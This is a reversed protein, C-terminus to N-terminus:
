EYMSPVGDGDDDPLNEDAGMDYGAGQPRVDGDIDDAPAGDPTATDVCPSALFIHYDGPGLFMPNANINGTGAHGGQVDSYAVTPAVGTDVQNPTNGWLISNLVTIPSDDMSGIGGAGETNGDNDAITCNTLSIEASDLGVGGVLWSGTNGTIMCNTLSPSNTNETWIGGIGGENQTVYTRDINVDGIGLVAIGGVHCGDGCGTAVNNTVNCDEITGASYFFTIGGAVSGENNDITVGSITPSGLSDTCRIGGVGWATNYSVNGGSITPSGGFTSVGGVTYPPGGTFGWAGNYSVNCNSITPSADWTEIGGTYYGSNFTVACGSVTLSAPSDWNAIGGVYWGSNYTVTGGTITPSGGLFHAGGTGFEPNSAWWFNSNYSITCGTITPSADECLIGGVELGSNYSVTVGTMTLSAESQGNYIGGAGWSTNYSISGGTITPSGGYFAAGGATDYSQINTSNYSLNCGSLTPSGGEFCAAGAWLGSNFRINCGSLTPSSDYGEIGGCSEWGNYQMNCDTITPSAGNCFIAAFDAYEIRFGRLVSNSGESSKFLFGYDGDEPGCNITCDGPGACEVTIAKGQFDIDTETYTGPDALVTDGPGAATIANQFSPYPYSGPVILTAAFATVAVMIAAVSVACCSLILRIEKKRM